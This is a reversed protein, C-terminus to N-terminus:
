VGPLLSPAVQGAFYNRIAGTVFAFLNRGQQRCTEIVTLLTEVFRSGSASQTGFSLKRWIVAHRLAREARNNTPEVEPHKVFTWLADYRNLLDSCTAETPAHGCREGDELTLYVEGYLRNLHRHLGRASLDGDRARHRAHFLQKTWELLQEGIKKAAGGADAMAQFDRKLHAWCWQLEDLWLYMRARDCTVVGAYNEGLTEKLVTAARTLRLSFVTIWKAVFTWLWAKSKGQKTPSEDCHLHPQQPLTARLEEYCPRLAETAQNQLKVVLGASCPMGFLHQFFLVVRRKSQRFFAMCLVALGIMNPGSQGEPVGAPLTATTTEGCCACRLRHRQYETITPRLEPIEWVQHRLPAADTGSLAQGCRRCTSPRLCEVSTCRETPILARHHKPHGPQGGRRRPSTPKDATPKAHPHECSPPLSSNRPTQNLRSELEAIRAQLSAVLALMADAWARVAPTMEAAVEPPIVIAEQGEAM